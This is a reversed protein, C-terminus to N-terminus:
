MCKMTIYYPLCGCKQIIFSIRCELLCSKQSYIKTVLSKKSDKFYCGSIKSSLARIDDSSETITPKVGINMKDLDGIPVLSGM